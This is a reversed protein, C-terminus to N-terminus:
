EKYTSLEVLRMNYDKTSLKHTCNKCTWWEDIVTKIGKFIFRYQGNEFVTYGDKIKRKKKYTQNQYCIPCIM